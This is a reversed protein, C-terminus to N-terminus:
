PGRKAANNRSRRWVDLCLHGTPKFLAAEFQRSLRTRPYSDVIWIRSGDPCVAERIGNGSLLMKARWGDDHVKSGCHRKVHHIARSIINSANNGGAQSDHRIIQVFFGSQEWADFDTFDIGDNAFAGLLRHQYTRHM